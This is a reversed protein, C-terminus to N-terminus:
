ESAKCALNAQWYSKIKPDRTLSEVLNEDLDEVCSVEKELIRAVEFVKACGQDPRGSKSAAEQFIEEGIDDDELLQDWDVNASKIFFDVDMPLVFHEAVLSKFKGMCAEDSPITPNAVAVGVMM